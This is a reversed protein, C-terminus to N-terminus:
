FNSCYLFFVLFTASFDPILYRLMRLRTQFFEWARTRSLWAMGGGLFILLLDWVSLAWFELFDVDGERGGM